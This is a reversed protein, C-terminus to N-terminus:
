WPDGKVELKISLAGAGMEEEGADAGATFIALPTLGKLETAM